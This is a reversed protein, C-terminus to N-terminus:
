DILLELQQLENCSFELLEDILELQMRAFQEINQAQEQTEDAASLQRAVNFIGQMPTRLDHSIRALLHNQAALANRLQSTRMAVRHELQERETQKLQDIDLMAQKERARGLQVQSVLTYVLLLAGPLASMSYWSYEYTSLQWLKFVFGTQILMQLALLSPFLYCFWNYGLRQRHGIWTMGLMLLASVGSIAWSLTTNLFIGGLLVQALGYLVLMAQWSTVLWRCWAPMRRVKLLLRLFGLVMVGMAARLLIILNSDLVPADPWLYVFGYGARLAVFAVYLLVVSAHAFLVPMRYIMGVALSLLVLLGVVGFIVGDATSEAMQARLLDDYTLLMPQMALPPRNDMRLIFSRSQGAPLQLEFTPLRLPAAWVALPWNAGAVSRQWQGHQQQFLRIDRARAAGPFLWLQCDADGNNVVEFRLWLAASGLDPQLYLPSTVALEEPSAALFDALTYGGHVDEYVQLWPQLLIREVECSELRLATAAQAPTSLLLVFLWLLVHFWRM